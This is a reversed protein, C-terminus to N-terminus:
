CSEGGAPTDSGPLVGSLTLANREKYARKKNYMQQDAAKFVDNYDEDPSRVVAWGWSISPTGFDADFITETKEFVRQTFREATEESAGPALLVVEDGGIRAVFANNPAMEKIIESICCLLRDGCLHGFTDNVTKLNNVDGLIILLPLKGNSMMKQAITIYTNRNYLGTMQDIAAISEMYRLVSYINTVEAIEVLNGFQKAGESIPKTTILLHYEREDVTVTIINEDHPSVVGNGAELLNRRYDEFAQLYKPYVLSFVADDDTKNWELIRGKKSLILVLTSLNTFVFDRSTAIVNAANARFFGAFCRSMVFILALLYLLFASRTNVLFAFIMVVSMTSRASIMLLTSGRMHRPMQYFVNFCLLLSKVVMVIWYLLFAVGMYDLPRLVLFDWVNPDAGGTLIQRAAMVTLIVPVAFYLGLRLKTIKKYSVQTHTHLCFVAPLSLFALYACVELAPMYGYLGYISTLLAAGGIVCALACYLIFVGNEMKRKRKGYVGRCIYYAACLLTLLPILLYIVEYRELLKNIESSLLAIMRDLSINDFDPIHM